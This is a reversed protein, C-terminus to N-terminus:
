HSPYDNIVILIILIRRAPTVWIELLQSDCFLIVSDNLNSFAVSVVWDLGLGDGLVCFPILSSVGRTRGHFHWRLPLVSKVVHLFEGCTSFCLLTAAEVTRKIRRDRCARLGVFLVIGAVKVFHRGHWFGKTDGNNM